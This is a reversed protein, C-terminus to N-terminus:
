RFVEGDISSPMYAFLSVLVMMRALLLSLKNNMNKTM